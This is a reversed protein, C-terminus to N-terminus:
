QNMCQNLYMHSVHIKPARASGDMTGCMQFVPVPYMQYVFMCLKYMHVGVLDYVHIPFGVDGADVGGIHIHM